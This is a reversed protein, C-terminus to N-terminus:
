EPLLKTDLDPLPNTNLNPMEFLDQNPIVNFGRDKSRSHIIKGRIEARKKNEPKQEPRVGSYWPMYIYHHRIRHSRQSIPFCHYIYWDPQNWRLRFQNALRAQEWRMAIISRSTGELNSQHTKLKGGIKNLEEKIEKELKREEFVARFKNRFKVEKKWAEKEKELEAIEKEVEKVKKSNTGFIEILLSKTKRYFKIAQHFDHLDDEFDGTRDSFYEALEKYYEFDPVTKTSITKSNIERKPYIHVTLRSGTLEQVTIKNKDGSLQRGTILDGNKLYFSVKIVKEYEKKPTDSNAAEQNTKTFYSPELSKAYAVRSFCDPGAGTMEVLVFIVGVAATSKIIRLM